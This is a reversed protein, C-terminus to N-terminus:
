GRTSPIRPVVVFDVRERDEEFCDVMAEQYESKLLAIRDLPVGVRGIALEHALWKVLLPLYRAPLDIRQYAATIDEIKKSVLMNATYTADPPVPWFTIDVADNLRETMFRNPRAETLKNSIRQYEKQSARNIALEIDDKEITCQLVDLVTTDLTYTATSDSLAQSITDIKSLPINKNQLQILLLNLTKRAKMADIASIHEGGSPISAQDLLDSVDMSFTVTGSTTSTM